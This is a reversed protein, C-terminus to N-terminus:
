NVNLKLQVAQKGGESVSVNEGWYRQLIEPNRYEIANVDPWAYATYDGPAVAKITFNGSGDTRAIKEQAGSGGTRRVLLVSCEAAPRDGKMVTGSVEGGNSGITIELPAPIAGSAISIPSAVADVGGMVASKVYYPDQVTVQLLYEGPIVEPITFGKDARLRASPQPNFGFEKPRLIIGLWNPNFVGTGEKEEVRVTGAIEAGKSLTIAVDEVDAQAVNVERAGILHEPGQAARATITYMGPTVDRVVFEGTGPTVQVPRAAGNFSDVAVRSGLTAMGNPFGEPLNTIRGRIIFGHTPQMRFDVRAEGGPTMEVPTASAFESAGAYYSRAYATNEASPDFAPPRPGSFSRVSGGAVAASVYFRGPPLQAVRYEGLDNTSSGSAPRVVRQGMAIASQLVQVNVGIMPDGNEDVVKGTLVGYPTLRLVVEGQNAAIDQPSNKRAFGRHEAWINCRGASLNAFAFHGGADAIASQGPMGANQVAQCQLGVNARRVPEGTVDNVVSGSLTIPDADGAGWARAALACLLLAAKM